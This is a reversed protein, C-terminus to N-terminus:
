AGPTCVSVGGALQGSRLAWCSERGGSFSPLLLHLQPHDSM